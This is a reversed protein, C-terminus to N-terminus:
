NPYPSRPCLAISVRWWTRGHMPLLARYDVRVRVLGSPYCEHRYWTSKTAAEEREQQREEENICGGGRKGSGVLDKEETSSSRSRFHCFITSTAGYGCQRRTRGRTGGGKEQGSDAERAAKELAHMPPSRTHRSRRFSCVRQEHLEKNRQKVKELRRESKGGGGATLEVNIKRGELESQHLKLGQQLANRHTFEVFAFGKSKNTPKSNTTLKPVMLRVTPPPDASSSGCARAASRFLM